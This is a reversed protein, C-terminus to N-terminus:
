NRIVKKQNNTGRPHGSVGPILEFLIHPSASVDSEAINSSDTAADM